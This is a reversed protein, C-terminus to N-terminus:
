TVKMLEDWIKRPSYNITYLGLGEAIKRVLPELPESLVERNGKTWQQFKREVERVLPAPVLGHTDYLTLRYNQSLHKKILNINVTVGQQLNQQLFTLESTSEMQSELALRVQENLYDRLMEVCYDLTNFSISNRGHNESCWQKRNEESLYQTIRRRVDPDFDLAALRDRIRNVSFLELDGLTKYPLNELETRQELSPEPQPYVSNFTTM